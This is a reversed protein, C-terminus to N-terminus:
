LYSHNSFLVFLVAIYQKLLTKDKYSWFNFSSFHGLMNGLLEYRYIMNPVIIDLLVKANEHLKHFFFKPASTSILMMINFNIVFIDFYLKICISGVERANDQDTRDASM